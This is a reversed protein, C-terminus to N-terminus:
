VPTWPERHFVAHFTAQPTPHMKRTDRNSRLYWANPPTERGPHFGMLVLLICYSVLKLNRSDVM